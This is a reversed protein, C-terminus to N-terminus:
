QSLIEKIEQIKQPDTLVKQFLAELLGKTLDVEGLPEHMLKHTFQNAKKRLLEIQVAEKSDLVMGCNCYKADAPQISKCLPCNKPELKKKEADVKQKQEDKYIGRHELMKEDVHDEGYHLYTDPMRSDSSWGAFIRLDRENFGEKALQNLRSHRLLHPHVRKTIGASKKARRLVQAIGNDKLKRGYTKLNIFLYSDKDNKFPHYNLWDRLYPVSDILRIKRTGTKGTITVRLGHEDFEIHKLQISLMEGLRMAGDYQTMIIAKDRPHTCNEVLNKIESPPLMEDDKKRVRERVPKIEKVLDEKRLFRRYFCCIVHKYSNITVISKDEEQLKFFFRIFDNETVEEYPKKIFEGFYFLAGFTSALAWVGVKAYTGSRLRIYYENLTERQKESLQIQQYGIFKDGQYVKRKVGENFYRKVTKLKDEKDIDPENLKRRAEILRKKFIYKITKEVESFKEYEKNRFFLYEYFAKLRNQYGEITIQSIEKDGVCLQYFGEFDEATVDQYPKRIFVAFDRAQKFLEDLYSLSLDPKKEMLHDRFGKIVEQQAITLNKDEIFKAIKDWKDTTM